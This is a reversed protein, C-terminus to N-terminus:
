NETPTKRVQEIALVDVPMRRSELKLGVQEAAEPLASTGDNEFQRMAQPPMVMGSNLAARRLLAGYAEVSVTFTLDFTGKLQTLDVIPRDSYRELESALAAVTLKRGEFKGGGFTYTAGNGLDGIIGNQNGSVKTTLVDAPPPANPDQPIERLRLPPKGVIMAYAPMEKKERHFALAFRDSLLAQLMVFVEAAKAGPPLKASIDFREAAMWEPGSVQYQKVRFALAIIDRLPLGDIRMQSGDMRLGLTMGHEASPPTARVSAVEFELRAPQAQSLIPAFSLFGAAVAYLTKM